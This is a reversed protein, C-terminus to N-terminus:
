GPPPRLLMWIGFALFALGVVAEAALIPWYRAAPLDGGRTKVTGTRWQSVALGIWFLGGGIVVLDAILSQKAM